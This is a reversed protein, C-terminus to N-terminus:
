NRLLKYGVGHVNMIPSQGDADAIKRRLTKIYTYVTSISSESDSTWVSNLLSEPSFVQDPHRMLFELLAFERPLLTLEAGDKTVRRSQTDLELNSVKIVTHLSPGSRRLLARIRASLEKMHFPKTLYDDAGADLGAAKDDITDKGTLMLIPTRGGAARYQACVEPGSLRPLQWDLIIVDYEYLNLRLVAEEGDNVIESTHKDTSLWSAYHKCLELDDEVVLIKAVSRDNEV